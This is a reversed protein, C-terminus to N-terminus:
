NKPYSYFFFFMAFFRRIPFNQYIKKRVCIPHYVPERRRVTANELLLFPPLLWHANVSYNVCCYLLVVATPCLWCCYLENVNQM